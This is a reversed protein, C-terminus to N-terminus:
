SEDIISRITQALKHPMMYFPSHNSEITKVLGFPMNLQNIRQHNLLLAQDLTCEIYSKKIKNLQDASWTISGLYPRIPQPITKQIQSEQEEKSQGNYFSKIALARDFDLRGKSLTKLRIKLADLFVSRGGEELQKGMYIMRDRNRPVNATLYILQDLLEPCRDAVMTIIIGGMSHGLLIVPEGISQVTKIVQDVYSKLTISMASKSGDEHGNLTLTHPTFGQQTLAPLLDEWCAETHFAGHVLVIHKHEIKM